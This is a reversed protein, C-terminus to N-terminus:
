AAPEFRHVSPVVAGRRSVEARRGLGVRAELGGAVPLLRRRRRRSDLPGHTSPTLPEDGKRVRDLPGGAGGRRCVEITLASREGGGRAIDEGGDAVRAAM